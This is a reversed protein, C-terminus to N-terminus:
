LDNIRGTENIYISVIDRIKNQIEEKYPGGGLLDSTKPNIINEKQLSRIMKRREARHNQCHLLFHDTTEDTNCRQCLPTNSLEFRNLHKNLGVHGIRLRCLAAETRRCKNRAWPWNKIDRKIKGLHLDDNIETEYRQNWTNMMKEKIKIKIETKDLPFQTEQKAHGLKALEDAKENGPIGIHAPVYQITIDFGEATLDIYKTKLANIIFAHSPPFYKKMAQISSMSDTLLVVNKCELIESHIALWTMANNLATLEAGMINRATGMNMKWNESHEFKPIWVAASASNEMISGDTYIRLHDKYKTELTENVIALRRETSEEKTFPQSLGTKLNMVPDNWPPQDPYTKDRVDVNMPINWQHMTEGVRKTLPKKKVVTWVKNRADPDDIIYQTTPHDELTCLKLFYKCCTEKMHLKLPPINAEVQLAAIPSTKRAGTAIRLASNQIKELEDLRTESASTFATAGYLIKPRVYTTYIRLLLEREAGWSTGALARMINLRQNAQITLDDIHAKWTLFPADLTLGLYKFTQVYRIDENLIKLTPLQLNRRQTFCMAMTKAPNFQLNWKTAWHELERIAQNLNRELEPLNDATASIALDDAFESTFIYNVHPIDSVMVNFFTPSLCSGQPVGRKMELKNSIKDEVAVQYTRNKLFKETWSLMNGKIGSSAMKLLLHDHSITDFAQKLDFFISIMINKNVLTTRVQHEIKVLLDETSRKKRFGCQTQSLTNNKELLWSLRSNIMKEMVKGLCSLLSIPRYSEPNTPDKGPKGIPIILSNTWSSPIESNRWSRNIIGLLEHKKVIPLNKLFKNHIEDEGTTKDSPLSDICEQLEKMTFRTNYDMDRNENKAENIQDKSDQDINNPELGLINELSEAILNAKETASDLPIGNQQLPLDNKVNKGNISKIM